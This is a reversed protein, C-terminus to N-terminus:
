LQRRCLGGFLDRSVPRSVLCGRESWAPFLVGVGNWGLSAVWLLFGMLGRRAAVRSSSFRTRNVTAIGEGIQCNQTDQGLTPIWCSLRGDVRRVRQAAPQTAQRGEVRLGRGRQEWRGDFASGKKKRQVTSPRPTGPGHRPRLAPVRVDPGPGSGVEGSCGPQVWHSM